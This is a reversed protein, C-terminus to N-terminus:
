RRCREPNRPELSAASAPPKGRSKGGSTPSASGVSAGPLGAWAGLSLLPRLQPPPLTGPAAVSPPRVAPRGGRERGEGRRSAGGLGAVELGFDPAVAHAGGSLRCLTHTSPLLHYRRCTSVPRAGSLMPSELAAPLEDHACVSDRGPTTKLDGPFTGRAGGFSCLFGVEAEWRALRAEDV